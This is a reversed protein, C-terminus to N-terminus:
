QLPVCRSRQFQEKISEHFLGGFLRGAPKTEALGGVFSDVADIDGGYAEELNAATQPNNSISSFSSAQSLGFAARAKNYTPVGM